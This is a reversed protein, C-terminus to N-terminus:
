FQDRAQEALNRLVALDQQGYVVVSLVESRNTLLSVIPRETEKPLSTIRNVGSKIDALAKEKDADVTLEANISARGESATAVVRKVGDIGRVAEEVALIIGQEVEAPSAGPYPVSISVLDLETEPFVEQKVQLSMLLGGVLLFFMLLNAAVPNKAMWAVAGTRIDSPESAM